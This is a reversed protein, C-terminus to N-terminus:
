IHILNVITSTSTVKVHALLWIFCFFIICHGYRMNEILRMEECIKNNGKMKKKPKMVVNTFKGIRLACFQIWCRSVRMIFIRQQEKYSFRRYKIHKVTVERILLVSSSPTHRRKHSFSNEPSENCDFVTFQIANGYSISNLHVAASTTAGLVIHM